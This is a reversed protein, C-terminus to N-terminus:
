KEKDKLASVAGLQLIKLGTSITLQIEPSSVKKTNLIATVRFISAIPVRM